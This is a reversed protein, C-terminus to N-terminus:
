HPTDKREKVGDREKDRQKGTHATPGHPTARNPLMSLYVLLTSLLTINRESLEICM